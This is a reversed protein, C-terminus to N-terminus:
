FSHSKMCKHLEACKEANRLTSNLTNSKELYQRIQETITNIGFFCCYKTCINLFVYMCLTQQHELHYWKRKNETPNIKNKEIDRNTM